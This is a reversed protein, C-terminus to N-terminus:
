HGSAFPVSVLGKPLGQCALINSAHHVRENGLSSGQYPSPTTKCSSQMTGNVTTDFAM